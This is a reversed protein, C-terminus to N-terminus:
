VADIGLERLKLNGETVSKRLETYEELFALLKGFDFESLPLQAIERKATDLNFEAHVNRSLCSALSAFAKSYRELQTNMAVLKRKADAHERLFRGTLLDQEQESM